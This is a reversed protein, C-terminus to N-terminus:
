ESLESTKSDLDSSKSLDQAIDLTVRGANAVSVNVAEATKTGDKRSFGGKASFKSVADVLVDGPRNAVIDERGLRHTESPNVLGRFTEDIISDEIPAEMNTMGM